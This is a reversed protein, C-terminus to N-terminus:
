SISTDAIANQLITNAKDYKITYGDNFKYHLAQKDHTSQIHDLVETKLQKTYTIDANHMLTTKYQSLYTNAYFYIGGLLLWTAITKIRWYPPFIYSFYQNAQKGTILNAVNKPKNGIELRLKKPLSKLKEIPLAVDPSLMCRLTFDDTYPSNVLSHMFYNFKTSPYVIQNQFCTSKLAEIDSIYLCRICSRSSIIDIADIPYMDKKQAILTMICKELLPLHLRKLKSGYIRFSYDASHKCFIQQMPYHDFLTHLNHLSETSSFILPPDFRKVSPSTCSEEKRAEIIQDYIYYATNTQGWTQLDKTYDRITHEKFLPIDFKKEYLFDLFAQQSEEPLSVISAIITEYYTKQKYKKLWKYLLPPTDILFPSVNKAITGEIDPKPGLYDILATISPLHCLEIKTPKNNALDFVTNIIPIEYESLTLNANGMKTHASATLLTFQAVIPWPVVINAHPHKITFDEKKQQM